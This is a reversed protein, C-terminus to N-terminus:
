DPKPCEGVIMGSAEFLLPNDDVIIRYFCLADASLPDLEADLVPLQVMDLEEAAARAIRRGDPFQELSGVRLARDVQQLAVFAARLRCGAGVLEGAADLLCQVSRICRGMLSFAYTM